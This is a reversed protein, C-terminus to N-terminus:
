ACVPLISFVHVSSEKFNYLHFWAGSFAHHCGPLCGQGAARVGGFGTSRPLSQLQAGPKLHLKPGERSWLKQTSVM